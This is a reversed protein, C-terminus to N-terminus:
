FAKLIICEENIRGNPKSPKTTLQKFATNLARKGMSAFDKIVEPKRLTKSISTTIDFNIMTTGKVTLLGSDAPKYVTLRRYKTNYIWVEDANVLKTPHESKLGMEAFENM